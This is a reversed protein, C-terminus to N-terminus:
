ILVLDSEHYGVGAGGGATLALNHLALYHHARFIMKSEMMKGIGGSQQVKQMGKAVAFGIAVKTVMNMLSM